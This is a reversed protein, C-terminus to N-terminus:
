DNVITFNNLIYLKVSSKMIENSSVLLYGGKVAICRSNGPM